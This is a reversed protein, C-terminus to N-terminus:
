VSYNPESGYKELIKRRTEKPLKRIDSITMNRIEEVTYEGTEASAGEAAGTTKIKNDNEELKKVRDINEKPPAKKEPAKAGNTKAKENAIVKEIKPWVASGKILWYTKEATNGGEQATERLIEIAEKDDKLAAEAFDIVDHFDEVGKARLRSEAEIKEVRLEAPTRLPQVPKEQPKPKPKTSALLKKVDAVTLLDDDAKDKLPDEDEATKEEKEEEKAKLDKVVNTVRAIELEEELRQNKRRSKRLDWYLSLEVQSFKTLDHLERPKDVEAAILAKREETIVEASANEDPKKEEQKKPAEATSGLEPRPLAEPSIGKFVESEQESLKEGKQVKEIVTQETIVEAKPAAEEKPKVETTM